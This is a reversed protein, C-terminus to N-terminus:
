DDAQRPSLRLFDIGRERMWELLRELSLRYGRATPLSGSKGLASLYGEIEFDLNIRAFASLDALEDTLNTLSM